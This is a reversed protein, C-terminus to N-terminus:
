QMQFIQKFSIGNSKLFSRILLFAVAAEAFDQAAYSLAVWETPLMKPLFVILPMQVVFPLLSIAVNRWEDELAAMIGSLWTYLGVFPQMVFSLRLFTIMESTVAEGEDVFVGAIEETFIMLPLYIIFTLIITLCFGFRMVRLCHQKQNAAFLKSVLPQIGTDLGNLPLYVFTLIVNSLTSAALLHIADYELLIVNLLYEIVFSMLAAIAFGAGIKFETAIYELGSLGFSTALKQKSYKFYWIAILAGSAQSIFTATAAGTMGWDFVIIFLADLIINLLATSGTFFFVHTPRETCRMFTSTLYITLLFPVGCLIIKLFDVATEVIRYEEPNNALLALLPEIFFNGAIVFIIGILLGCVYNTRMIKEALTTKGAGIEQSVVASAGTEFLVGLSAFIVTVPFILAMAELGDTGIWNGIFFADTMTYVCGALLAAFTSGGYKLIEIVTSSFDSRM